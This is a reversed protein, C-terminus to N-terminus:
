ESNSCKIHIHMKFSCHLMTYSRQETPKAEFFQNSITTQLSIASAEPFCLKPVERDMQQAQINSSPVPILDCYHAPM